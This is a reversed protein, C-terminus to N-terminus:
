SRFDYGRARMGDIIRTRVETVEETTVTHDLAGVELHYTVSKQGTPLPPGIYQRVFESMAVASGGLQLLAEQVTAVPTERATVISLDFGSTPYKRPPVYKKVQQAVLEQTRQLNVEFITARGEIGEQELLSPHLEFFRGVVAGHLEVQAARAPHEHGQASTARLTAGPLVCELVRKLEFFESEDGHASYLVAGLHPVNGPLHNGIEFLRFERFHRVNDVLNNWLGPLLSPRLHTMEAAIPNAVALMDAEAFGFRQAEAVSVFSYNYVETFGQAAIEQRVQRFYLRMPNAPPVVSAVLPPRPEIQDYGIMRGIEEVLDDKLSVDKTARWSPVTVSLHGGPEAEVGFGLAELIRIVEAEAMVKGLKKSVLDISLGIVQLPREPGRADVVGSSPRAGLLECTRALGRLTNEPDLAKEFRMSADTRIKHRVSTLRVGTPAFNASEFLVRRTEESIATAAGGIVGALAIPGSGDAIVLDAPDLEYTEGNLAALTEGTRALRVYITTGTLKDADFAHMPQPLEALVFNTIDVLNSIPNIGVSQLRSQMWLPSACVQLDEFLLASYRPCLSYDAIEVRFSSPGLPLVDLRVPDKLATGAIAAVERAMGLHGWLDPRHTLSKNDIEIVWDAALGNIAQTLPTGPEGAQLELIGAHNRSIGLEAASALMGESAVGDITAVGIVKGDLKVGPPVWTTLVGPRANPAGCILEAKRGGDIIVRQNKGKGVPEATEIRAVLVEALHAGYPEIGECEATKVTILGELEEPGLRLDETLESLWRYSFKM